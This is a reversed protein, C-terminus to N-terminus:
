NEANNDARIISQRIFKSPTNHIKCLFLLNTAAKSCIHVLFINLIKCAIFIEWLEFGAFIHTFSLFDVNKSLCVGPKCFPCMHRIFCYINYNEEKLSNITFIFFFAFLTFVARLIGAM